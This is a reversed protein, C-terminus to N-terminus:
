GQPSCTFKRDLEEVCVQCDYCHKAGHPRYINCKTCTSLREKSDSSSMVSEMDEKSMKPLIGPDTCAALSLMLLAEFIYM